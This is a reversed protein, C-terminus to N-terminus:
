SKIQKKFSIVIKHVQTGLIKLFSTPFPALEYNFIDELDIQNAGLSYM